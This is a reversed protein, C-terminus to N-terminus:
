EDGNFENASLKDESLINEDSGDKDGAEASPPAEDGTWLFTKDKMVFAISGGLKQLAAKYYKQELPKDDDVKEKAAQVEDELEYNGKLMGM